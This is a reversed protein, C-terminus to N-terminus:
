TEHLFPVIEALILATGSTSSGDTTLSITDGASFIDDGTADNMAARVMAGVAGTMSLTDDLATAGKEVSIVDTGTYAVTVIGVLAMLKFPFQCVLNTLLEGATTTSSNFLPIYMVGQPHLVQPAIEVLVRTTNAGYRKVVKGIEGYGGNEGIAIVEQVLATAGANDDVGVRDGIEFQAAACDFEFVGAQAVQVPDAANAPHATIAVGMFDRRFNAQTHDLSGTVYTFDPAARLDDVAQYVLDGIGIVSAANVPFSRVRKADAYRFRQPM